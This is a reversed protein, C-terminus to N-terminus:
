HEDMSITRWSGGYLKSTDGLLKQTSSAMLLLVDFMGSRDVNDPVTLDFGIVTDNDLQHWNICHPVLYSFDSISGDSAIRGSFGKEYCADKAITFCTHNLGRKIATKSQDAIKILIDAPISTRSDNPLVTLITTDEVIKVDAYLDNSSIFEALIIRNELAKYELWINYRYPHTNLNGKPFHDRWNREIPIQSPDNIQNLLETNLM